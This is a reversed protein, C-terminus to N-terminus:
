GLIGISSTLQNGGIITCPSRSGLAPRLRFPGREGKHGCKAIKKEYTKKHRFTVLSSDLLCEWLSVFDDFHAGFAMGFHPELFVDVFHLNEAGGCGEPDLEPQLSLEIKLKLVSRVKSGM